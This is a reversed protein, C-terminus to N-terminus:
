TRCPARASIVGVCPHKREAHAIDASALEEVKFWKLGQGNYNSVGQM